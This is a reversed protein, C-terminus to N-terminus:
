TEFVVTSPKFYNHHFLIFLFHHYKVKQAQVPVPCRSLSQCFFPLTTWINRIWNDPKETHISLKQMNWVPWWKENLWTRNATHGMTWHYSTAENGPEGRAGVFIKENPALPSGPFLALRIYTYVLCHASIYQSSEQTCECTNRYRASLM